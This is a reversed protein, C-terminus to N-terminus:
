NVQLQTFQNKVYTFASEMRLVRAKYNKNEQLLRKNKNDLVAKDELLQNYMKVGEKHENRM